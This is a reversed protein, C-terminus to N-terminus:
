GFIILESDYFSTAKLVDDNLTIDGNDDIEKVAYTKNENSYIYNVIESKVDDWYNSAMAEIDIKVISGVKINEM